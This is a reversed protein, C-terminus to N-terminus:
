GRTILSASPSSRFRQYCAAVLESCFLSSLDEQNKGFVRSMPHSDISANLDSIRKNIIKIDSVIKPYELDDVSMSELTRETQILDNMLKLRMREPALTYSARFIQKRDREYPKDKINEIFRDLRNNFLQDRNVNELRRLVILNSKSLKLRLDFPRIAVGKFDAEVVHPIGNIEKIMGIHDWPTRGTVKAMSCLLWGFPSFSQCPRDFLLIDGTQLKDPTQVPMNSYAGSFHNARLTLTLGAGGTVLLGYLSFRRLRRLM